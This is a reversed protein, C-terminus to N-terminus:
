KGNVKAQALCSRLRRAPDNDGWAALQERGVRELNARSYDGGLAEKTGGMILIAVSVKAEPGIDLANLAASNMVPQGTKGLLGQIFAISAEGFQQAPGADGVVGFITREQRGVVAQGVVIDGIKADGVRGGPLVFFPVQEANIFKEPTCEKPAIEGASSDPTKTNTLTTAAVFYGPFRAKPGFTCPYGESTPPIIDRKFFATLNEAKSHFLYYDRKATSVLDGIKASALQRDRITPWFAKWKGEFESAALKRAGAFLKIGGSAFHDLACVGRALYGTGNNEFECIGRGTPDEPHYARPSGDADVHIVRTLALVQKPRIAGSDPQRDLLVAYNNSKKTRDNTLRMTFHQMNCVEDTRSGSSYSTGRRQFALNRTVTTTVGADEDNLQEVMQALTDPDPAGQAVAHPAVLLFAAFAAAATSWRAGPAVSSGNRSHM